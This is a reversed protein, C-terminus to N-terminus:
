AFTHIYRSIRYDCSTLLYKCLKATVVVMILITASFASQVHEYNLNAVHIETDLEEECEGECLHRKSKRVEETDNELVAHCFDEACQVEESPLSDASTALAFIVFLVVFKFYHVSSAM